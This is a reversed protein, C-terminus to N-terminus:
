DYSDMRCLNVLSEVLYGFVFIITIYDYPQFGHQKERNVPDVLSLTLSCLFMIEIFHHAILRLLPWHIRKRFFNFFPREPIPTQQKRMDPTIFLIDGDRFAADM